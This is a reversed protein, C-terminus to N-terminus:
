CYTIKKLTAEIPIHCSITGKGNTISFVEADEEPVTNVIITLEIKYQMGYHKFRFLPNNRTIVPNSIEYAYSLGDDSIHLLIYYFLALNLFRFLRTFIQVRSKGSCPRAEM